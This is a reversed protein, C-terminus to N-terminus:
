AAMAPIRNGRTLDMAVTSAREISPDDNERGSKSFILNLLGLYVRSLVPDASASALCGASVMHAFSEGLDPRLAEIDRSFSTAAPEDGLRGRLIDWALSRALEPNGARGAFWDVFGLITNPTEPDRTLKQAEKYYDDLFNSSARLDEAHARAWLVVLWFTGVAATAALITLLIPSM